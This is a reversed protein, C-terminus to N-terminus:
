PRPSKSWSGNVLPSPTWSTDPSLNLGVQNLWAWPEKRWPCGRNIFPLGFLGRFRPFDTLFLNEAFASTPFLNLESPHLGGRADARRPPTAPAYPQGDLRMGGSDARYNGGLLNM